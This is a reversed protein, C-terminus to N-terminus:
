RVEDLQITYALAEDFDFGNRFDNISDDDTKSMLKAEVLNFVIRGFDETARIGWMRFVTRAMLGFEQLALARIAGLLEQGKIHVGAEEQGGSPRKGQAHELAKFLFDYAELAYRPDQAAVELLRPNFTTM